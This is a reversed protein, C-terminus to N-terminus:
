GGGQGSVHKAPGSQFAADYEFAFTVPGAPLPEAFTLRAVGTPDIQAWTGPYAKGAAIAVARKIALDRGHLDVFTSSAKLVADIEVKGSFRELNPDVTLDLRYASPKVADTLQGRPIDPAAALPLAAAASPAALAPAACVLSLLSSACLLRRM